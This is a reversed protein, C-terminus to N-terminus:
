MIGNDNFSYYGNKTSIVHDILNIDLINLASKIKQTIKKDAESPELNGSPHNHFVICGSSLSEIMYKCILKVDVVTGVCGGQSIKVYGITNNARNLILLFFSEFLEIDTKWFNLSFDYADKANTIKVKKFNTPEKTLSIKPIFAKYTKMAKINQNTVIYTYTHFL